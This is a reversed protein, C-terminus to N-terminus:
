EIQTPKKQQKFPSVLGSGGNMLSQRQDGNRGLRVTAIHPTLEGSRAASGNIGDLCKLNTLSVFSSPIMKQLLEELQESEISTM